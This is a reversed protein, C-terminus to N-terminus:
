ITLQIADNLINKIIPRAASNATHVYYEPIPKRHAKCAEVLYQACHAGTKITFDQWDLMQFQKVLMEETIRHDAVDFLDNDFSVVDPIGNKKIYEVFEDYSRVIAWNWSSIGSKEYLSKKEDWLYANEPDRIDDLFLCKKKPPAHYVDEIIPIFNDPVKAEKKKKNWLPSDWYAKHNSVRNEDGKGGRWTKGM